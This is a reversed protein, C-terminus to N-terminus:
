CAGDTTERNAQAPYRSELKIELLMGGKAFGHLPLM